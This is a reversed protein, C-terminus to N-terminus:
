NRVTIKNLARFDIVPRLKDPEEVFFIPAGFASSSKQIFGLKLLKTLEDKLAKLEKESLHYIPKWPPESDPILDIKHDIGPRKPPLMNISQLRDKILLRLEDSVKALSPHKEITEKTLGNEEIINNIQLMYVNKNKKIARKLQKASAFDITPKAEKISTTEDAVWKHMINDKTFKLCNTRWDIRPNYKYLWPKGLIIDYMIPAEYLDIIESYDHIKLKVGPIKSSTM